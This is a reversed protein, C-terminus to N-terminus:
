QKVPQEKTTQEKAPKGKIMDTMEQSLPPVLALPDVITPTILIVVETEGKTFSTSRFLQGLIPIDGLLPIKMVDRLIENSILGGIAMTQGSTLAVVSEAKRTKLPPVFLGNGLNVKATSNYDLSSVEAKVKTTIVNERSADPAIDLKVGYDKWEISIQGNQNSVPVPIQGGALINAKEGSLTVMNPQSLIKAYGNKILLNLQANIPAYGGFKNWPQPDSPNTTFSQGVNFVNPNSPLANYYTVGLDQTKSRNIEVIKAEIRIQLPNSIELLNVVKDGYAQAVKESRLRQYQDTVTGEVIITKGVKAVRIDPYGLLRKIEAAIANDGASVEVQYTRRGNVSWVMLTTMGTQKGVLLMESRSIVAVDAVEPNAIAARELGAVAIMKSQGAGVALPEIPEAAWAPTAILILFCIALVYATLAKKM